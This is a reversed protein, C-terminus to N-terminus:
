KDLDMEISIQILPNKCSIKKTLSNIITELNLTFKELRM